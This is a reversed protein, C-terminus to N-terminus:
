LEAIVFFIFVLQFTAFNLMLSAIVLSM